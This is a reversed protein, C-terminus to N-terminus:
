SDGDDETPIGMRWSTGLGWGGREQVRHILRAYLDVPAGPPLSGCFAFLDGPKVMEAILTEMAEVHQPEITAGPENIKTYLGSSEDLLTINQRTEEEVAIFRVDFGAATLGDQLAQGTRGGVFGIIRSEIGLARLARSVNMGKGALDFRLIQARNLEGLNLRPVSLTKDLSPNLSVTVIM